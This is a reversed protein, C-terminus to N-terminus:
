AAALDRYVGLVEDAVLPWAYRQVSRRGAEGYARALAPERYLRVIARVWADTDFPPAMEGERGHRMVERFGDIDSALVPLGVAMAELLNVGFSAISTPVCLVDASAYWDRREERLPGAFVVDARAEAPVDARYRELLPGGGVVLLRAGPVERRVRLFVGLLHDFGNRPEVRGVYLLNFRGDDFRPLRRGGAFTEVDVGNPIVRFGARGIPALAGICAESVVVPADLRDLYTGLRGYWARSLANPRFNSHFTGVVACRAYHVALLPLVPLLPCHVHIVDFAEERFTTQLRAALRAGVTIRGFSGNLYFPRSDAIRLVDPGAAEAAPPPLDPMRSTVIRVAHGRRRAERAFHHVHEQVGGLSPYYHETVIGIRV